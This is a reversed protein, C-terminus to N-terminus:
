NAAILEYVKWSVEARGLVDPFDGRPTVDFGADMAQQVFESPDVSYMGRQPDAPGIRLSVIASSNPKLLAGIRALADPRSEPPVHMWVANALVFDFHSDPLAQHELSPLQAPVWVIGSHSHLRKALNRMGESPEVAVVSHGRDALWGADRGTGAGIDLISLGGAQLRDVLFPYAHAFDVAEYSDALTAAHQDYYAIATQSQTMNRLWTREIWYGALLIMSCIAAWLLMLSFLSRVTKNRNVFREMRNSSAANASADVYLSEDVAKLWQMYCEMVHRFRMLIAIFALNGFTATSLLVTVLLPNDLIRSVGFWLGGTLTTALVPIQWMIQNLSRFQLYNQQYAEAKLDM